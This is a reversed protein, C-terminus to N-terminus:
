AASVVKLNPAAEAAFKNAKVTFRRTESTNTFQAYIKPHAAKLAKSDLRASAVTKYTVTVRGTDLVDVNRKALEAKIKDTLADAQAQQRDIEAKIAELENIKNYLDKNSM